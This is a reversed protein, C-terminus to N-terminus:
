DKQLFNRIKKELVEPIDVGLTRIRTRYKDFSKTTDKTTGFVQLYESMTEEIERRLFINSNLLDEVPAIVRYNVPRCMSRYVVFRQLSSNDYDLDRISEEVLDLNITDIIEFEVTSDLIERIRQEAQSFRDCITDEDYCAQESSRIYLVMDLDSSKQALGLNASGVLDLAVDSFETGVKELATILQSIKNETHETQYIKFFNRIDKFRKIEPIHEYRETLSDLPLEQKLADFRKADIINESVTNGTISYSAIDYVREKVLKRLTCRSIQNSSVEIEYFFGGERTIGTDTEVSGFSPANIFTTNYEKTIQKDTHAMGTLCLLVDNGECYSQLSSSSHSSDNFIDSPPVHSVIIDPQSKSLFSLVDDEYKNHDTYRCISEPFTHSYLDGGGFGSIKVSDMVITGAHLDRDKLSTGIFDMDNHGPLVYVPVYPKTSLIRELMTYKKQMGETAKETLMLYHGCEEQMDSSATRSASLSAAFDSLPIQQGPGRKTLLTNQLMEYERALDASYFPTDLINGSLIYLDAITEKLLTYIAPLSGHPNSCYIIKM